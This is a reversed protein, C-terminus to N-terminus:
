ATPPLGLLERFARQAPERCKLVYAFEPDPIFPFFNMSANAEFLLVQGDPLIGFDMGFFDLKMRERVKEFVSIVSTPFAGEVKAFMSEEEARLDPRSAMLRRRDKAHVNWEDSVFMHRFIYHPGIFWMRYKRYLGDASQFDVFETAFYETGEVLSAETEDVSHMLGVIEGKHTGARRLIIPLTLDAKTLTRIANAVKGARLRVVKPVILGQIGTLRRAVVDRTTPLIASPPNIVKARVGRVLRGINGLVLPNREAETVLNVIYRYSSLEPRRHQRFFNRTMQLRHFPVMGDLIRYLDSSGPIHISGGSSVIQDDRDVGFILLLKADAFTAQASNGKLQAM